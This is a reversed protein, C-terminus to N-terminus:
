GILDQVLSDIDTQSIDTKREYALERNAEKLKRLLGYIMIMFIKNGATPHNKVFTLMDKRDIEFIISDELCTVNATREVRMFLGAEGFVESSGMTSIYSDGDEKTVTVKVNGKVVALLSQNCEGQKIVTEGEGYSFVRCLSVLENLEVESLFRFPLINKIHPVLTYNVKIKEM